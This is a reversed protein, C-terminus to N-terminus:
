HTKSITFKAFNSLVSLTTYSLSCIETSNLNIQTSLKEFELNTQFGYCQPGVQDWESSLLSVCDRRHYHPTEGHSLLDNGPALYFSFGNSVCRTKENIASIVVRLHRLM